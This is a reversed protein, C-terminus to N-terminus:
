LDGPPTVQWDWGVAGTLDSISAEVQWKKNLPLPLAGLTLTAQTLDANVDLATAFPLLFWFVNGYNAITVSLTSLDLGGVQDVLGDPDVFTVVLANTTPVFSVYVKPGEPRSLSDFPNSGASTEAGNPAGDGDNDGDRDIVNAYVFGTPDNGPLYSLAWAPDLPVSSRTGTVLNMRELRYDFSPAVVAFAEEGSPGFAWGEIIGGFEYVADPESPAVPDYRFLQASTVYTPPDYPGVVHPRGSADVHMQYTAANFGADIPFSDLVQIGQTQFLWYYPNGGCVLSWLTGDGAPALRCIGAHAGPLPPVPLELTQAVSGDAKDLNVLYPRGKQGPVLVTGDGIWLEGSGTMALQHPYGLNYLSPGSINSWLVSGDTDVGYAPGPSSLGIRTTAYARGELDIVVNIPNDSLQAYPLLQGNADIRLLKTTNLPDYAIWSRGLGDLAMPTDSFLGNGGYQKVSTAGLPVLKHSFRVLSPEYNKAADFAYLRVEDKIQATASPEGVTL